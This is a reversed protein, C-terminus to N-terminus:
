SGDFIGQLETCTARMMMQVDMAATQQARARGAEAAEQWLRHDSLMGWVTIFPRKYVENATAGGRLDAILQDVNVEPAPVELAHAVFSTTLSSAARQGGIVHPVVKSLWEALNGENYGSLSDWFVGVGKVTADRIKKQGEIHALALRSAM